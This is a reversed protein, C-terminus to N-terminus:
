KEHKRPKRNKLLEEVIKIVLLIVALAGFGIGVWIPLTDAKQQQVEPSEEVKPVLDATNQIMASSISNEARTLALDGYLNKINTTDMLADVAWGIGKDSTGTAILMPNGDSDLLAELYGIDAFNPDVQVVDNLATPNNTGEEFPQPLQKNLEAIKSNKTPQGIMFLHTPKEAVKDYESPTYVQLGIGEGNLYHGLFGSLRIVMEDVMRNPDDPLIFGFDSMDSNGIFAYPFENISLVDSSPGLPVNLETDAFVVIWSSTPDVDLCDYRADRYGDPLNMNSVVTLVNDGYDFLRAPIVVDQWADEANDTTLQITDTPTGNMLVTIYSEELEGFDSHAFHLRMTVDSTVKWSTALPLTYAIRQETTGWSTTDLYQYDALTFTSVYTAQSSVSAPVQNLVALADPLQTIVSDMTLATAAKLLAADTNGTVVLVSQYQNDRFQGTWLIGAEDSYPNGNADQLIGDVIKWPASLESLLALHSARGVLIVNGKLAAPNSGADSQSAFAINLTRWSASQGLKASVLAAANTEVSTPSDPLVFTVENEVIGSDLVFPVPFENLVPAAIKDQYVLDFSSTTHVTFWLLDDDLNMCDFGEFGLYFVLQIRNYGEVWLERPIQVSLEGHDSNEANLEVSAIQSGNFNVVFSSKDSLAQAHSFKLNLMSGAQPEWTSPYVFGYEHVANIGKFSDDSLLIGLDEFTFTSSQEQVKSQPVGAFIILFALIISLSNWIKRGTKKSM